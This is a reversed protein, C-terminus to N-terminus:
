QPATPSSVPFGTAKPLLLRSSNILVALNTFNQIVGTWASTLKNMCGLMYGSTTSFSSIGSNQKAIIKSGRALKAVYVLIFPDKDTLVISVSKLQLTRIKDRASELVATRILTNLYVVGLTSLGFRNQDLFLSAISVIGALLETSLKKKLLHDIATRFIPIGTLLTLFTGGQMINELRLRPNVSKDEHRLYTLALMLGTAM